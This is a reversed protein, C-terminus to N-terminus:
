INFVDTTALLSFISDYPENRMQQLKVRNVFVNQNLARDFGKKKLDSRVKLTSISITALSFWVCGTRSSM